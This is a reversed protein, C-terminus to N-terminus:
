KSPLFDQFLISLIIALSTFVDSSGFFTPGISSYISKGVQLLAAEQYSARLTPSILCM